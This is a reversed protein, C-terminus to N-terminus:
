ADATVVERRALEALLESWLPAPLLDELIPLHELGRPHRQIYDAAGAASVEWVPQGDRVTVSWHDADILTLMDTTSM